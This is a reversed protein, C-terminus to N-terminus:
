LTSRIGKILCLLLITFGAFCIDFCVRCLRDFFTSPRQIEKIETVTVEYPISDRVVELRVHEVTDRLIRFRIETNLERILITDHSRDTLLDHSVYTSDYRYSNLYVTDVKTVERVSELPIRKTSCSCCVLSTVIVITFILFKKM